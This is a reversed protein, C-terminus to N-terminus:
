RSYSVLAARVQVPDLMLTPHEEKLMACVRDVPLSKLDAATLGRADCLADFYGAAGKRRGQDLEKRLDAEDEQNM